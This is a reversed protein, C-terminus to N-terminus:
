LLIRWVAQDIGVQWPFLLTPGIAKYKLEAKVMKTDLDIYDSANDEITIEVVEDPLDEYKIDVINQALVYSTDM